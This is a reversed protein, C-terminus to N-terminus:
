AGSDIEELFLHFVMNVNNELPFTPTLVSSVRGTTLGKQDKNKIVTRLAGQTSDGEFEMM